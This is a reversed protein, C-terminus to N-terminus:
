RFSRRTSATKVAFRAQARDRSTVASADEGQGLMLYQLAEAVHSYSNKDPVDRFRDAGSVHLRKFCYSGAMAKRLTRCSPSIVLRPRATMTMRTLANAVAERRLVFDNSHAPYIPLGAAQVVDYPTQEDVQSRQTGAPDGHGAFTAHPYRAKLDTAVQKSFTTAGMDESVFEDIVQWQSDPAKQAVVIAPTLGFDMGLFLDGGLWKLPEKATHVEDHYEPYVPKGDRVFGYKGHVFVDIWAPDKGMMMKQYYGPRLNEINEADPALGSPQHFVAFDAFDEPRLNEREEFLKYLWHDTDPPNTDMWIGARTPGGRRMAPYRGVRGSMAEFVAKPVEKAENIWAGTLELSLLKKVDDPRDLARLIFESEVDGFRIVFKSESEVWMRVGSPIWDEMTIKTTDFLERYSNRTIAFRTRRIGDGPDPAQGQAWRMLEITSGTSKGSGYPGVILRNEAPSLFFRSITPPAKYVVDAM